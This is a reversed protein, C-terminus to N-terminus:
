NSNARGKLRGRAAGYSIRKVKECRKCVAVIRRRRATRKHLRRKVPESRVAFKKSGCTTCELFDKLSSGIPRWVIAM